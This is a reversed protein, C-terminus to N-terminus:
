APVYLQQLKGGDVPLCAGTIFSADDSLLFRVAHAIEEPRGGRGMPIAGSVRANRDPDAAAFAETAPTMIQGPAVVNVRVGHPAAEAAAVASFHVLAAKSASYSAMAPMARLGNLSSINVIAGSGQPIMVRMAAQTGIFVADANIRFDHRWDDLTLDAIMKYSVAMANNVLGDLRSHRTAVGAVFAAFGEADGVDLVHSEVSGAAAVAQHAEALVDKRRACIVVHAGERALEVATARGIGDSGGTVIVVKGAMAQTM